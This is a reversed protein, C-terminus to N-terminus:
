RREAEPSPAEVVVIDSISAGGGHALYVRGEKTVAPNRAGAHTPVQAVQTLRGRSDLRAITLQGAKAAGVYALHTQPSYDIDDVGDGTDLSSKVKGDHAVDLAEVRASCAVLLLGAKEDLRIGHPGEEGCAPQWTAITKHTKLSIALTRDKDELNTYFRGRKEDVAFGEPNGEFSLKAKEQLTTGDLIRITNDRPATVWVENRSTVYALGDPMSDLHGCAGRAFTRDDIACVTSDARNGVYVVGGRGITVSSPGVVRKRNGQGMEATPFGSIQKVDDTATDIVDVSGTNGAPVWVNRTHPDYAIYDMSVPGGNAGPTAIMRVSYESTQASASLASALSAFLFFRKM